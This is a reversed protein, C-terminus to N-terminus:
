SSSIWRFDGFRLAKQSEGPKKNTKNISIVSDAPDFQSVSTLGLDVQTM